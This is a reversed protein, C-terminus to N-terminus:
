RNGEKEQWSKKIILIKQYSEIIKSFSKHLPATIGRASGWNELCPLRKPIIGM